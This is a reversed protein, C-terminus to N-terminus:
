QNLTGCALYLHYTSGCLNEMTGRGFDVCGPEHGKSPLDEGGDMM